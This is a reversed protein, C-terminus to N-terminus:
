CVEELFQSVYRQRGQLFICARYGGGLYVFQTLEACARQDIVGCNKTILVHSSKKIVDYGYLCCGM